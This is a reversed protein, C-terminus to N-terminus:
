GKERRERMRKQCSCTYLCDTHMGLNMGFKPSLLTCLLITHKGSTLCHRHPPAPHGSCTRPADGPWRFLSTQTGQCRSLSRLLSDHAGPPVDEQSWTKTPSQSFFKLTSVLFVKLPVHFHSFTFLFDIFPTNILLKGNHVISYLFHSALLIDPSWGLTLSQTSHIEPNGETPFSAPTSIGVKM